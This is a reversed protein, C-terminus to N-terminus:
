EVVLMPYASAPVPAAVRARMTELDGVLNKESWEYILEPRVDHYRRTGIQKSGKSLNVLAAGIRTKTPPKQESQIYRSWHLNIAEVNILIAGDGVIATKQQTINIIPTDLYGVIWECILGPIRGQVALMRTMSTVHGEVLFRSGSVVQRQQSLWLAHAAIGDGSVWDETATRGGLSELYKVPADDVSIHLFKSAVAELDDSGIDREEERVLMRGSNDALVVRLAGQLEVNPLYKRRLTHASSGVLRRLDKTSCSMSEDGFVLPCRAIDSNFNSNAVDVLESPGGTTWIRALGHALMTKGAGAKGSCYLASSQRELYTVTAIWDLLREAESGGFLRM